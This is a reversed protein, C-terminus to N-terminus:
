LFGGGLVWGVAWCGVRAVRCCAGAARRRFREAADVVRGCRFYGRAMLCVEALWKLDDAPLHTVEEVMANTEDEIGLARERFRRSM